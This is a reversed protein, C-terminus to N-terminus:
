SGATQIAAVKPVTGSTARAMQDKPLDTQLFADASFVRSPGSGVAPSSHFTTVREFRAHETHSRGSNGAPRSGSSATANTVVFGLMLAAVAGISLFRSLSRM